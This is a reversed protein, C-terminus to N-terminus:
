SVASNRRNPRFGIFKCGASAPPHRHGNRRERGILRLESAQSAFRPQACEGRLLPDVEGGVIIQPKGIRGPQLCRNGGRDVPTHGDSGTARPQQATVMRFMLRKFRLRRHEETGFSRDIEAASKGGIDREKGRQREPVVKNEVIFQNMGAHMITNRGALRISDGYRM